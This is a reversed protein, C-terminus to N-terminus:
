EPVDIHGNDEPHVEEAERYARQTAEAPCGHEHCNQGNINLVECSDCVKLGEKIIQRLQAGPGITGKWICYGCEGAKNFEINKCTPCQM